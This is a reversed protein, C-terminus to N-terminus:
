KEKEQNEGVNYPLIKIDNLANKTELHLFSEDKPKLKEKKIIVPEETIDEIESKIIEEDHHSTAIDITNGKDISLDEESLAVLGDLSQTLVIDNKSNISPQELKEQEENKSEEKKTEETETKDFKNPMGYFNENNDEQQRHHIIENIEQKNKRYKLFSYIFLLVVLVIDIILFIDTISDILLYKTVRNCLTGQCDSEIWQVQPVLILFLLCWGIFQNVAIKGLLYINAFPIWAKVNSRGYCIQHMRSIFHSFICYIVFFIVLLITLSNGELNKILEIWLINSM